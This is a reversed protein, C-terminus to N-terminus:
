KKDLSVPVTDAKTLLVQFFHYKQMKRRPFPPDPSEALIRKKQMFFLVNTSLSLLALEETMWALAGAM